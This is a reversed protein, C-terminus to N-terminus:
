AAAGQLATMADFKAWAAAVMDRSRQSGLRANNAACLLDFLTRTFQVPTM